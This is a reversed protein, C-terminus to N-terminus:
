GRGSHQVYGKLEENFSKEKILQELSIHMRYRWYHQPNAPVNIREEDPNDHRLSASMGLLDQLQFISWMAPAYLHQLIIARNIWPECYKPAEGRQGLEDNFFQQTTKKDEQWWGRITSMDHTSPTVVSLYPANAPNFFQIGQQKPMRQIELSLIGLQKMVGPVSDPVMGLDEGCILMDTAAKLAPLKTLAEKRWLDDQRRYFYDIYLHWIKERIHPQLHRYSSTQDISIRFHFKSKESHAEEFLIVNSVLDYLGEKLNEAEPMAVTEFYAEIKRQTDFEPLLAYQQPGHKRLFGTKVTEAREAFIETLVEDTIYPLCFREYDFWIGQEGFDNIHVPKCPDFRGMIGQVAHLPISWIRFFGLIHDIRFADFYYSMQGFRKRWWAFGDEQMKPWNYTPFGWNQGKVAFDDPPAGAQADMKYLEPEMWADCGFRYVGIPIDGKIVVGKKHAYSVADTLQQHLHYQVYCYFLLHKRAPNQAEFFAEVDSKQFTQNTSWQSSDPTQFKDRLYCYAAYPKLWHAHQKFFLKFEDSTEFGTAEEYLERLAALKFHLAAEYDVQTLENLQKRKQKVAEKLRRSKFEGVSELHIYLPHLAFASIAAYPYSDRWTNTAITDNVPLLQILKLGAKVAWDAMLKLDNFEGVGLGNKTRLSFVPVSVGAGRWNDDPLDIFGDQLFSRENAASHGFCVRNGGNEFGLFTGDEKNYIGYKYALPFQVHALNLAVTWYAGDYELRIAAETRWQSLAESEGLLCVAEKKQLLPAKVRFVHTANKDLKFKSAKQGPLLIQQFPATYFTNAIAGADNWTDYINVVEIGSYHLSLSRPKEFESIEVGDVGTLVYLYSLTQAPLLATDIETELRWYEDNFYQLAVRGQEAQWETANGKISLSEGFKTKYRIFFIVKM